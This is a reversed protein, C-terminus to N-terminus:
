IQTLLDEKAAITKDPVYEISIGTSRTFKKVENGILLLRIRGYAFAAAAIVAIIAIILKWSTSKKGDM